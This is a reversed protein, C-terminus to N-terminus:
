KTTAHLSPTTALGYVRVCERVGKWDTRMDPFVIRNADRIQPLATAMRLHLPLDDAWLNKEENDASLIM